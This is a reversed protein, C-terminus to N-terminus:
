TQFVMVSPVAPDAAFHANPAGRVSDAIANLVERARSRCPNNEAIAGTVAEYSSTDTKLGGAQRDKSKLRSVLEAVTAAPPVIDIAGLCAAADAEVIWGVIDEFAQGDPWRIIACSSPAGASALAEAYGIGTADGDVLSAVRPHLPALV